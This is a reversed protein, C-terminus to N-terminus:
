NWIWKENSKGSLLRFNPWNQISYFLKKTWLLTKENPTNKRSQNSKLTKWTNAVVTLFKNSKSTPRHKESGVITIAANFNSDCFSWFRLSNRDIVGIWADHNLSHLMIRKKKWLSVTSSTLYIDWRYHNKIEWNRLCCQIDLEAMQYCIILLTPRYITLKIDGPENQQIKYENKMWHVCKWLDM